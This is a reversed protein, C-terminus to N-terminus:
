LPTTVDVVVDMRDALAEIELTAQAVQEDTRDAIWIVLDDKEGDNDLDSEAINSVGQASFQDYIAQTKDALTMASVPAVTVSQDCGEAPGLVADSARDSLAGDIFVTIDNSSGDTPAAAVIGEDGYSMVWSAATVGATACRAPPM